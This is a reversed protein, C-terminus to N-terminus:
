EAPLHFRKVIEPVPWQVCVDFDGRAYCAIEYENYVFHLGKGDYYFNNTPVPDSLLEQRLEQYTNVEFQEMLENRILETLLPLQEDTVIDSLTLKSGYDLGITGVAIKKGGHAGGAYESEEIRFSVIWEDSYIVSCDKKAGMGAPNMGGECFCDSLMKIFDKHANLLGTVHSDDKAAYNAVTIEKLSKKLTDLSFDQQFTKGRSVFRVRLKGNYPNLAEVSEITDKHEAGGIQFMEVPNWCAGWICLYYTYKDQGDQHTTWRIVAATGGHPDLSNVLTCTHALLRVPFYKYYTEGGETQDEKATPCILCIEGFRMQFDSSDLHIRANNAISEYVKFKALPLEIAEARASIREQDVGMGYAARITGGEYMTPRSPTNKFYTLWALHREFLYRADDQVPADWKEPYVTGNALDMIKEWVKEDLLIESLRVKDAMSANIDLTTRDTESQKELLAFGSKDSAVYDTFHPATQAFLSCLCLCFVFLFTKKM